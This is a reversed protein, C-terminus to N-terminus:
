NSCFKLAARPGCNASGQDLIINSVCEYFIDVLMFILLNFQHALYTNKFFCNLFWFNLVFFYINFNTKSM